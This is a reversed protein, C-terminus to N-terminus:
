IASESLFTRTQGPELFYGDHSNEAENNSFSESNTFSSTFARSQGAKLAPSNIRDNDDEESVLAVDEVYAMPLHPNDAIVLSAYQASDMAHNDITTVNDNKQNQTRVQIFGKEKVTEAQVSANLVLPELIGELESAVSSLTSYINICYIGVIVLLSIFLFTINLQKM